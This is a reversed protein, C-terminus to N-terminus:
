HPIEAMKRFIASHELPLAPLKQFTTAKLYLGNKIHLDSRNGIRWFDVSHKIEFRGLLPYNRQNRWIYYAHRPLELRLHQEQKEYVITCSPHSAASDSFITMPLSSVKRKWTQARLAYISQYTDEAIINGSILRKICVTQTRYSPFWMFGILLAVCIVASLIKFYLLRRARCASRLLAPLICYVICVAWYFFLGPIKAEPTIMVKRIKPQIVAVRTHPKVKRMAQWLKQFTTHSHFIVLQGKGANYRTLGMEESIREINATKLLPMAHQRAVFATGGRWIFHSLTPLGGRPIEGGVLLVDLADLAQFDRPLRAMTPFNQLPIAPM